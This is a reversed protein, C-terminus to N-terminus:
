QRGVDIKCRTKAKVARASLVEMMTVAMPALQTNPAQDCDMLSYPKRASWM